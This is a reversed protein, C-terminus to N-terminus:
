QRSCLVQVVWAALHLWQKWKASIQFVGKQLFERRKTRMVRERRKGMRLGVIWLTETLASAENTNQAVRALYTLVLLLPCRTVAGRLQRWAKVRRYARACMLGSRGKLSSSNAEWSRYMIEPTRRGPEPILWPFRHSNRKGGYCSRIKTCSKRSENANSFGCGWTPNLMIRTTFVFIFCFTIFHNMTTAVLLIRHPQLSCVAHGQNWWHKEKKNKENM